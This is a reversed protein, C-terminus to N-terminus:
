GGLGGALLTALDDNQTAAQPQTSSVQDMFASVAANQQRNNVSNALDLQQKVMQDFPAMQYQRRYAAAQSDGYDRAQAANLKAMAGLNSPVGPTNAFENAANLYLQNSFRQADTLKNMDQMQLTQLAMLQNPTVMFRRQEREQAAQADREMKRQTIYQTIQSGMSQLAAEEDGTELAAADFLDEFYSREESDLDFQGLLNDFQVRPPDSTMANYLGYGTAGLAGAAWGVPGFMGLAAAYPAAQGFGQFFEGFNARTGDETQGQVLKDGIAGAGAGVAMGGIAPLVAGKLLGAGKSMLAAKGADDAAGAASAFPNKVLRSLLSRGGAGGGAGAGAGAGAAAGAVDDAMAAPNASAMARGAFDDATTAASAASNQAPNLALPTDAGSLAPQGLSWVPASQPSGPPLALMPKASPLARVADDTAGAITDAASGLNAPEVPDLTLPGLEPHVKVLDDMSHIGPIATRTARAQEVAIDDAMDPPLAGYNGGFGPSHVEALQQPTLNPSLRMPKWDPFARPGIGNASDVMQAMSPNPPMTSIMRAQLERFAAQESSTLYAGGAKDFGSQPNNMWKMFAEQVKAPNYNTSPTAIKTFDFNRGPPLIGRETAAAAEDLKDAATGAGLSESAGTGTAEGPKGVKPVGKFDDPTSRKSFDDLEANQEALDQLATKKPPMPEDLKLEPEVPAKKPLPAGTRKAESAPTPKRVQANSKNTGPAKGTRPFPNAPPRAPTADASPRTPAPRNAARFKAAEEARAATEGPILEDIRKVPGATGPPVYTGRTRNATVRNIRRAEGADTVTPDAKALADAFTRGRGVPDAEPFPRVKGEEAMKFATQYIKKEGMGMEVPVDVVRGDPLIVENFVQGTEDTFRKGIEALPPAIPAQPKPKRGIESFNQRVKKRGSDGMGSQKAM